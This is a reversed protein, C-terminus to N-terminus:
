KDARRYVDHLDLVKKGDVAFEGEYVLTNGGDKVLITGKGEVTSGDALHGGGKFVWKGDQKWYQYDGTTGGSDVGFQRVKKAAPDWFYFNTNTGQGCYYEELFGRKDAAWRGTGHATVKEGKKGLGPWDAILTVEGIWRGLLLEGFEKWLANAATKDATPDNPKIRRAVSKREFDKGDQKWQATWVFGEKTKKLQCNGSIEKGDGFVVTHTGEWLDGKMGRLPYQVEAYLGNTGHWHEVLQETKAEWGSIGAFHAEVENETGSSEMVVFHKGPSWRRRDVDNGITVGNESTESEWDGIFFSLAELAKQPVKAPEGAPAGASLAAIAAFAVLTTRM